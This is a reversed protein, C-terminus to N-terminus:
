GGHCSGEQQTLVANDDLNFRCDAVRDLQTHDHSVWLLPVQHQRCYDVLINETREISAADLSATPEDLLLARPNNQLLRAVALRQKEGTSLRSVQWSFVDRDFGLKELTVLPTKESTQFHDGVDDFWWCSEALLLGVNKRWLQAPTANCRMEGVRIEGDHPDLDAIARLLLSKGAGSAGTLGAVEGSKITFTYPGRNQFSLESVDLDNM